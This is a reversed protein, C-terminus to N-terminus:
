IANLILLLLLKTMSLMGTFGGRLLRIWGNCCVKRLSLTEASPPEVVETCGTRM